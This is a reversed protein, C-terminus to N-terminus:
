EHHSPHDQDFQKKATQAKEGLKNSKKLIRARVAEPTKDNRIPRPAPKNRRPILEQMEKVELGSEVEEMQDSHPEPEPPPVSAKKAMKIAEKKLIGQVNGLWPNVKLMESRKKRAAALLDELEQLDWCAEAYEYLIAALEQTADKVLAQSVQPEEAVPDQATAEDGSMGGFPM